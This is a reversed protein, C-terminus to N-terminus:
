FLPHHGANIQRAQHRAPRRGNLMHLGSNVKCMVVHVVDSWMVKGDDNGTHWIERRIEAAPLYGECGNVLSIGLRIPSM